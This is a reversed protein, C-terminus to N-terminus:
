YCNGVQGIHWFGWRNATEAITIDGESREILSRHVRSLRQCNLYIKPKLGGQELFAYELSRVSVDLAQCVDSILLPTEIHTDIYNQATLFYKQRNQTGRSYNESVASLLGQIVKEALEAVFPQYAAEIESSKAVATIGRLLSRLENMDRDTFLIMGSDIGRELREWDAHFLDSATKALLDESLSFVYNSFYGMSLASFEGGVPFSIFSNWGFEQGCWTAPARHDALISFTRLHRPSASRQDYPTNFSCYGFEFDSDILQLWEHGQEGPGIQRFDLEWGQAEGRLSEFEEYFKNVSFIDKFM